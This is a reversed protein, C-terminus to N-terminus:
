GRKQLQNVLHALQVALSFAVGALEVLRFPATEIVNAFLTTSPVCGSAIPYEITAVAAPSDVAETVMGAESGVAALKM